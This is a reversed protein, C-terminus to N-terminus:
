TPGVSDPAAPEVVFDRHRILSLSAIAAAFAVMAGILGAASLSAIVKTSGWGDSASILGYVLLGLAASFSM